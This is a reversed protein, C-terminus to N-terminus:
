WEDCAVRWEPSGCKSPCIFRDVAIEFIDQDLLAEPHACKAQVGSTMQKQQLWAALWSIKCDCVMKDTRM